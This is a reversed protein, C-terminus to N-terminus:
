CRGGEDCSSPMVFWDIVGRRGHPALAQVQCSLALSILGSGLLAPCDRGRKVVGGEGERVICPMGTANLYHDIRLPRVDHILARGVGCWHM